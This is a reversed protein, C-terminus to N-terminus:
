ALATACAPVSGRWKCRCVTNSSAKPCTLQAYLNNPNGDPSRLEQARDTLSLSDVTRDIACQQMGPLIHMMLLLKFLVCIKSSSGGTLM